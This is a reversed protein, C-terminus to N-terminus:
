APVAVDPSGGSSGLPFGISQKWRLVNWDSDLGPFQSGVEIPLKLNVGHDVKDWDLQLTRPAHVSISKEM